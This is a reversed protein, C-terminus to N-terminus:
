MADQKEIADGMCYTLTTVRFILKFQSSHKTQTQQKEVRESETQFRMSVYWHMDAQMTIIVCWKSQTALWFGRGFGKEHQIVRGCTCCKCSRDAVEVGWSNGFVTLRHLKRPSVGSDSMNKFSEEWQTHRLCAEAAVSTVPDFSARLRQQMKRQTLHLCARYCHASSTVSCLRTSPFLVQEVLRGRHQLAQGWLCASNILLQCILLFLSGTQRSIHLILPSNGVSDLVAM